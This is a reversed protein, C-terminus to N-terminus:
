VMIPSLSTFYILFSHNDVEWLSFPLISCLRFFINKRTPIVNTFNGPEGAICRKFCFRHCLLDMRHDIQYSCFNIPITHSLYGYGDTITVSGDPESSTASSYALTTRPPIFGIEKMVLRANESGEDNLPRHIEHREFMIRLFYVFIKYQDNNNHIYYM